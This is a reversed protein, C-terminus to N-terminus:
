RDAVTRSHHAHPSISHRGLKAYLPCHGLAGTVVLDLGALVLLALLVIAVPADAGALFVLGSGAAAGGVAIRGAREVPSINIDPRKMMSEGNTVEDHDTELALHVRHSANWRGVEVRLERLDALRQRLTSHGLTGTILLDLAVLVLVGELLGAVRGGAVVRLIVAVLATVQGLVIRRIREFPTINTFRHDM